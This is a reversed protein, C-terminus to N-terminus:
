NHRERPSVTHSITKRITKKRENKKEKREKRKREARKKREKKDKSEATQCEFRYSFSIDLSFDQDHYGWNGDWGFFSSRMDM